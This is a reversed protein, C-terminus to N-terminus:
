TTVSTRRLAGIFGKKKEKNKYWLECARMRQCLQRVRPGSERIMKRSRSGGGSGGGGGGGSGIGISTCICAKEIVRRAM